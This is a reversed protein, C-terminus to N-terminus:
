VGGNVMQRSDHLTDARQSAKAIPTDGTHGATTIVTFLSGKQQKYNQIDSLLGSKSAINKLRSRKFLEKRLM